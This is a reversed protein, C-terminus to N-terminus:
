EPVWLGCCQGGALGLSHFVGEEQGHGSPRRLAGWGSSRARVGAAQRCCSWGCQRRTELAGSEHEWQLWCHSVTWM